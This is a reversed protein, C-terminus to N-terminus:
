RGCWLVVGAAGQLLLRENDVFRVGDISYLGLADMAESNLKVHVASKGDSTSWVALGSEATAAVLKGDPSFAVTGVGFSPPGPGDTPYVMVRLLTGGLWDWLRVTGDDSATAAMHGDHSLAIENITRQHGSLSRLERWTDTDWIRLAAGDAILLYRGDASFRSDGPAALGTRPFVAPRDIGHRGDVAAQMAQPRTDAAGSDHGALLAAGAILAFAACRFLQLHFYM